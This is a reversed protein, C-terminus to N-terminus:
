KEKVPYWIYHYDAIVENPENTVISPAILLSFVDGDLELSNEKLYNLGSEMVSFYDTTERTVRTIGGICREAPHYKVRSNEINPVFEAYEERVAFGVRSVVNKSIEEKKIIPLFKVFPFKGSWSRILSRDEKSNLIEGNEECKLFYMAPRECWSFKNYGELIEDVSMSMERICKLLAQKLKIEYLIQEEREYLSNKIRDVTSKNCLNAAEKLPIGMNRYSRVGVAPGINEFYYYRYGNGEWKFSKIANHKEYLRIGQPSIGILDCIENMRMQIEKM